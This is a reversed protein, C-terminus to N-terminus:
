RAALTPEISSPRHVTKRARDSRVIVWDPMSGLTNVVHGDTDNGVYSGSSSASPQERWAVWQYSSGSANVGAHTGVEFGDALVAQIRNAVERTAGSIPLSSDGVEAAFRQFAVTGSDFRKILIYTPQFGVGTISRDDAGDGIYTGMRFDNVCDDARLAVWHYTRGPRNVAQDSGVEFGDPLLAQIRDERCRSKLECSVDGDMLATRMVASRKDATESAVFLAEPEFGVNGIARDDFGDGIYSGTAVRVAEVRGAALVTGLLSIVMAFAVGSMRHCAAVKSSDRRDTAVNLGTTIRAAGLM